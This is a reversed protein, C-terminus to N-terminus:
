DDSKRSLEDVKRRLEAIESDAADARRITHADPEDVKRIGKYILNSVIAAAAAFLVYVSLEIAPKVNSLSWVLVFFVGWGVFLWKLVVGIAQSEVEDSYRDISVGLDSQTDEEVATNSKDVIKALSEQDNTVNLPADCYQCTSNTGIDKDELLVYNQKSCSPCKM